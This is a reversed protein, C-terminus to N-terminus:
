RGVEIMLVDGRLGTTITMITYGGGTLRQIVDAGSINAFIAVAGTYPLWGYLHVM